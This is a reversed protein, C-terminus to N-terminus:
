EEIIQVKFEAHVEPHLKISINYVGLTKIPESLEIKRKDIDIKHNKKIIEAIEKSTVSGFLKGGEGAKSTIKVTLGSIKDGLAKADDKIQQIKKNEAEKQKGLVKMNGENAEIALGRPFLFNRAYGESAEVISGKKGLSKVDQKLIVKMIMGDKLMISNRIQKHKGKYDRYIDAYILM